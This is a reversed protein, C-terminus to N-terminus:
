GFLNAAFAGLSSIVGSDTTAAGHGSSTPAAGLTSAIQNTLTQAQLAVEIEAREAATLKLITAIVPYLRVRENRHTSSMYKFICNKLYEMSTGSDPGEQQQLRELYATMQEIKLSLKVKSLLCCVVCYIFIDGIPILDSIRVRQAKEEALSSSVAELEIDKEVAERRMSDM